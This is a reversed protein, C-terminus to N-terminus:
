SRELTPPAEEEIPPTVPQGLSARLAAVQRKSVGSIALLTADDADRIANVTGLADLLVKRTAPGIGRVDDLASKFRKKKGLKERAKNSFRHAEDRARALFFLSASHTRLAIPNKQGPLYVRDVLTEGMVNEKEKALSVIPLDHLGLDHAAALAVGLQGRGGDVVFLDPLEWEDQTSSSLRQDNTTPRPDLTSPRHDITSPRPGHDHSLGAEAVIATEALADRAERGRRFRRALVEYMANYDDGATHQANRVHFTRYHKKDPAGDKMAVIAGV